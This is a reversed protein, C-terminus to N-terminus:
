DGVEKYVTYGNERAFEGNKLRNLDKNVRYIKADIQDLYHVLYAEPIAPEVPSGYEKEGHHSAVIHKLLVIEEKDILDLKYAAKDIEGLCIGIHGILVGELTYEIAGSEIQITMEKLKGYDHLLIGALVLDINLKYIQALYYGTQLMTSTHLAWGGILDHHYSKAAPAYKSRDIISKDFLMDVLEYYVSDKHIREIARYINDIHGDLNDVQELFDEASATTDYYGQAILSSKGNYEEIKIIIDLIKGSIIDKKVLDTVNWMKFSEIVNGDGITVTMFEKGNKAQKILVSKILARVTITEGLKSLDANKLRETELGGIRSMM